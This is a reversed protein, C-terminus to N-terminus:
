TAMGEGSMESTRVLEKEVTRRRAEVTVPGQTNSFTSSSHMNSGNAQRDGEENGVGGEVEAQGSTDRTYLDERGKNNRYSFLNRKSFSEARLWSGFQPESGGEVAQDAHTAMCGMEGHVFWGCKLCIRPLNEYRFYVWHKTQEVNIFRGRPIAKMLALQLKVRLYRGWGTGDEEVDVELVRGVSSGIQNGWEMSMCGLPMNHIQLWFTEKDFVMERLCLKGEYPILVFLSSDFSWPKGELVKYMDAHTEFSIVFTNREVEQFVARRSIRWIKAMTNSILTKSVPRDSCVRGILSKEGKRDIEKKGTQMIEVVEEEEESLKLKRWQAMLVEAGGRKRSAM